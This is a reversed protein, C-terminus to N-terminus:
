FGVGCVITINTNIFDDCVKFEELQTRVTDIDTAVPPLNHLERERDDLETLVMQYDSNFEKVKEFSDKTSQMKGFAHRELTEYASQIQALQDGIMVCNEASAGVM